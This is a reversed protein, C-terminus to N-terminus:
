GANLDNDYINGYTSIQKSPKTCEAFIICRISNCKRSNGNIKTKRIKGGCNCQHLMNGKDHDM